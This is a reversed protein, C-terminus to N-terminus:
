RGRPPTTVPPTPSGPNVGGFSTNAGGLNRIPNFQNQLNQINQQALYTGPAGPRSPFYHLYDGFSAAHGSTLPPQNGAPQGYVSQALAAQNQQLNNIASQFQVQPQVLNYYNVGAPAGARNINLYPSVAPPNPNVGSLTQAHLATATGCVLLLAVSGALSRQRM